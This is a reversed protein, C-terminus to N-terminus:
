SLSNLSNFYALIGSCIGTALAEQYETNQLLTAEYKNSLFGLEVLASPVVAGLLVQSVAYKVHRNRVYSNKQHACTIVHQHLFTALKNSKKFQECVMYELIRSNYEDMTKFCQRLLPPSLCFTEIGSANINESANAHISVFVAKNPNANCITRQDLPMFIDCDRTLQVDFGNKKLLQAVKLGIQLTIDKEKLNNYGVTGIDSGGHGCDIIVHPKIENSVMRILPKGEEKIKELLEKSYFTFVAGKYLNILDCTDYVIEVKSPNYSISFQLGQKVQKLALTYNLPKIRQLAQLVRTYEDSKIIASSFSFIIQKKQNDLQKESVLEIKPEKTFYFVVKGVELVANCDSLVQNDQSGHHFVKCLQNNEAAFLPLVILLTFLSINLILNNNGKM